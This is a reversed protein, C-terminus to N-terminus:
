TGPEEDKTRREENKTRREVAVSPDAITWGMHFRKKSERKRGGQDDRGDNGKGVDPPRLCL